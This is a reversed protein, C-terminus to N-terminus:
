GALLIVALVKKETPLPYTMYNLLCTSGKHVPLLHRYM